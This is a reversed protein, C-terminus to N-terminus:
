MHYRAYFYKISFFFYNNEHTEYRLNTELLVLINQVFDLVSADDKASKIELNVLKEDHLITQWQLRNLLQNTM